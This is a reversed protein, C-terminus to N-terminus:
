HWLREVLDAISVIVGIIALWNKHEEPQDLLIMRLAKLRNLVARLEVSGTKGAGRSHNLLRQLAAIIKELEKQAERCRPDAKNRIISM